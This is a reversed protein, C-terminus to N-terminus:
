SGCRDYEVGGGIMVFEGGREIRGEFGFRSFDGWISRTARVMPRLQSRVPVREMRRERGRIM